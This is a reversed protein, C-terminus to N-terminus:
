HTRGKEYVRFSSHYEGSFLSAFHFFFGVLGRWLFLEGGCTVIPIQLETKGFRVKPIKFKDGDPVSEDELDERWSAVKALRETLALLEDRPLDMDAHWFELQRIVKLLSDDHIKDAYKELISAIEPGVNSSLVSPGDIENDDIKNEGVLAASLRRSVSRMLSM